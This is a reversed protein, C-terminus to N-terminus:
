ATLTATTYNSGALNGVGGDHIGNTVTIETTVTDDRTFEKFM